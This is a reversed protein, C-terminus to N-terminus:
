KGSETESLKVRIIATQRSTLTKKISNDNITLPKINQEVPNSLWASEIEKQPFSLHMETTHENLNVLHLIIGEGDEAKKVYQVEVGPDNIKFFEGGGPAPYDTALHFQVPKTYSSGQNFAEVPDYKGHVLFGYKLEISGPQSARFNTEWYNNMPWALLLPNKKRPISAHERGFNFDGVQILPADPCYLTVGKDENHISVYNDTAIWNRCSGKLQEHDLETPIGATNFHSKWGSDLNLPFILYLSEPAQDDLKKYRIVIDILPSYSFLTIRIELNETGPASGYCVLTAQGTKQEIMCSDHPSGAKIAKWDTIWNSIGRNEKQLNRNHYAKRNRPEPQEHVMQCFSWTNENDIVQWNNEKNLLGTVEGTNPNFSLRYFASELFGKGVKVKETQAPSLESVPIVQWSYPKLRVPGCLHSNGVEVTNEHKFNLRMKQTGASYPSPDDQQWKEPLNFFALQESGSPNIILVGNRHTSVPPNGVWNDLEKVLLYDTLSSARYAPHAKLYWERRVMSADPQYTSAWNGWTHEDYLKVNEWIENKIDLSRNDTSNFAQLLEILYLEQKAKRTLKTEFASSAVGYSWWDTWDGEVIPISDRPIQKIRALLDEPTIYRIVPQNGEDNWEKIREANAMVPYGNDGHCTTLYIFDYPYDVTELFRIYNSLGKKMGDTGSGANLVWVDFMTYHAGNMVLIDRGSPGKWRFVGPWPKAHGGTHINVAMIFLEIGSDLFADVAAWSMGNVDHNIATKIPAGFQNSIKNAKYLHRHLEEANLLPTSNYEFASVGMRGENFHKKFLKIRDPSATKLWNSVPATVECTWTPQSIEPWDATEELFDLAQEIYDNQLEWLMAQSHTYGVDLHSHHLVLIEKIGLPNYVQQHSENLEQAFLQSVTILGLLVSYIHFLTRQNM